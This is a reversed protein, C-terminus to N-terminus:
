ASADEEVPHLVEVIHVLTTRSLDVLKPSGAEPRDGEPEVEVVPRLPFRSNLQTVLATEGTNLRVRTGLPYISFEHILAKFIQNSFSQKEAVLLERVAEHPLLRARYPRANLLAEFIDVIGIIRAHEHIQQEKLGRPYGQGGWREHEQMVVQALGEYERGLKSLLKYGLVPHQRISMRDEASLKDPKSAFGEPLSFMGIDHILAAQTLRILEDRGYGLAVGLRPAMVSVNVM